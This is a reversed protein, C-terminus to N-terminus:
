THLHYPTETNVYYAKTFHDINIRQFYSSINRFHILLKPINKSLDTLYIISNHNEPFPTFM